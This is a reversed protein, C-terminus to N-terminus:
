YFFFLVCRYWFKFKRSKAAYFTNLSLHVKEQEGAEYKENLKNRLELLFQEDSRQVYVKDVDIHSIVVKEYNRLIPLPCLVPVIEETAVPYPLRSGNIDYIYVLLRFNKIKFLNRDWM